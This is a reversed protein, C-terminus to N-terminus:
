AREHAVLETRPVRSYVLFPTKASLLWDYRFERRAAQRLSPPDGLAGVVFDCRALNRAATVERPARTYALLSGRVSPLV